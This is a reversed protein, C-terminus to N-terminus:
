TSIDTRIVSWCSDNPRRHWSSSSKVTRCGSAVTGSWGRVATRFAAADRRHSALWSRSWWAMGVVADDDLREGIEIAERLVADADVDRGLFDLVDAYHTLWLARIRDAVPLLALAEEMALQGDHPYGALYLAHYGLRALADARWAWESTRRFLNAAERYRRAASAFSEPTATFADAM